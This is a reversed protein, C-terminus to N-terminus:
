RWENHTFIYELWGATWTTVYPVFNFETLLNNCSNRVLNFQLPQLIQAL